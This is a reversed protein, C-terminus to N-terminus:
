ARKVMQEEIMSLAKPLERLTKIRIWGRAWSHTRESSGSKVFAVGAGCARMFSVDYKSDGVGVVDSLSTGLPKILESLAKEKEKLDSMFGGRELVHGLPM